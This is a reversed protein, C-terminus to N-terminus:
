LGRKHREGIFYSGRPPNIFQQLDHQLVAAKTQLVADGDIRRQRGIAVPFPRLDQHLKGPGIARLQQLAVGFAQTGEFVDGLLHQMEAAILM